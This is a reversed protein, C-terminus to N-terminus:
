CKERSKQVIGGVIIRAPSQWGLSSRSSHLMLAKIALIQLEVTLSDTSSTTMDHRSSDTQVCLTHRVKRVLVLILVFVSEALKLQSHQIGFGEIPHKARRDAGYPRM